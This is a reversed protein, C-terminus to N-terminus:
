IEMKEAYLLHLLYLYEKHYWGDRVIKSTYLIGRNKKKKQAMTFHEQLSYVVISLIMRQENAFTLRRGTNQAGSEVYDSHDFLYSYLFQSRCRWKCWIWDFWHERRGSSSFWSRCWWKWVWRRRWTAQCGRLVQEVQCRPLWSASGPVHASWRSWSPRSSEIRFSRPIPIGQRSPIFSFNM